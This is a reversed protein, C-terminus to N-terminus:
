QLKQLDEISIDTYLSIKEVPMGEMLGLSYDILRRRSEENMTSRKGNEMIFVISFLQSTSITPPLLAPRCPPDSNKDLFVGRRGFFFKTSKNM